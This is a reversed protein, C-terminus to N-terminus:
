IMIKLLVLFDIHNVDKFESIYPKYIERSYLKLLISGFIPPQVARFQELVRLLPKRRKRNGLSILLHVIQKCSFLLKFLLSWSHVCSFTCVQLKIDNLKIEIKHKAPLYYGINYYLLWDHKLVISPFVHITIMVFLFSIIPFLIVFTGHLM